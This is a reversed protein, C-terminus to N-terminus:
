SFNNSKHVSVVYGYGLGFIIFLNVKMTIAKSKENGTKEPVPVEM